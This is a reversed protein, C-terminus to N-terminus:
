DQQSRLVVLAIRENKIEMINITEKMNRVFISIFIRIHISISRLSRYTVAFDDRPMSTTAEVVEVGRSKLGCPQCGTAPPLAGPRSTGGHVVRCPDFSSTTGAVTGGIMAEIIPASMRCRVWGTADFDDGRCGRRWPEEARLAPMWSGPAVGGTPIHGWARGQLPRVGLDGRTPGVGEPDCPAVEAWLPVHCRLHGTADFDDSRRSRHTPTPGRPPDTERRDSM